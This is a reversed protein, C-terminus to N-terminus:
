VSTHMRATRELIQDIAAMDFIGDLVLQAAGLIATDEEAASAVIKLDSTALPLCRQYVLERVGDLLTDGAQSITGGIVILGPNLLSVVECVVEGVSRGAKRLLMLAEPTQRDFLDIVDRATSAPFGNTTLDRALAWGSAWAELCGLKGCRCLPPHASKVQIHGIDGAAGKAGRLIRGQSVIGSGIGTGVKIFIMDEVGAFHLRHEYITMLNVDNEVYVSVNFRQGLWGRIDFGDWGFLVSPGVVRGANFDVPTPLSLGIGFLPGSHPPLARALATFGEGIQTLVVQPGDSIQFPMTQEALITAALDTAAVHLHTEGINAVLLHGAQPRLRLQRTPRGGSPLTQPTEEVLGAGLLSSLRQSVTMRSLGSAEILDSRSTAGGSAILNLLRGANLLATGDWAIATPKM